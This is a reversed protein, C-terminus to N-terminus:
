SYEKLLAEAGALALVDNCGDEILAARSDRFLKEILYEKSLGYGGFLQLATSCVQFAARTCYIKSAISYQHVPPNNSLNYVLAHRSYARATEVQIFMEFLKQQVLQHECLLRGGQHRQRSYHLAEEFAARAVGTFVAGMAANALALVQELVAEYTDIQVLMYRDPIFVQDFFIEGQPLERQGMKNLPQGKSVGPLNLPVIAVGGGAMGRSRDIQVFLLAHTAVAGNSVWASKQGNLVWGGTTRSATVQAKISPDHFYPTGAVLQDSGHDPETIAWCGVMSCDTSSIFPEVLEKILEDDGMLCAMMFPFCDVGIAVTLGASGWGLEEFFIHLTLPDLGLGGYIEPLMVTHYGLEKMQRMTQWYLSGPRVVEAPSIEDLAKAAPRLVQRAFKHTQEKISIQEDSLEMWLDLYTSM